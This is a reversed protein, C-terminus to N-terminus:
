GQTQKLRTQGRALALAFNRAQHGRTDALPSTKPMEHLNVFTVELAHGRAQRHWECAYRQPRQDNALTQPRAGGASLRPVRDMSDIARCITDVQTRIMLDLHTNNDLLILM